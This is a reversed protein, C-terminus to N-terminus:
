RGTDCSQAQNATTSSPQLTTPFTEQEQTSTEPASEQMLKITTTEEVVYQLECNPFSGISGIPCKKQILPRGCEPYTGSYGPPCPPNFCNPYIGIENKRCKPNQICHPYTGNFGSINLM